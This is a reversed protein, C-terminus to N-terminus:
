GRECLFVIEGLERHPRRLVVPDRDLFTRREDADAGEQEGTLIGREHTNSVDPAAREDVEPDDLLVFVPVVLREVGLLLKVASVTVTRVDPPEM